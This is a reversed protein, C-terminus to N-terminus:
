ATVSNWDILDPYAQALLEVDRELGEREIIKAMREALAVLSAYNDILKRANEIHEQIHGAPRDNARYNDSEDPEFHDLVQKLSDIPSTM